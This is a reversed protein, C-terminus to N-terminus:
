PRRTVDVAGAAILEIDVIAIVDIDVAAVVEIDASTGPSAFAALRACRLPM